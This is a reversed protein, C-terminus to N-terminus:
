LSGLRWVQGFRRYPLPRLLSRDDTPQKRREEANSLLLAGLCGCSLDALSAGAADRRRESQDAFVM